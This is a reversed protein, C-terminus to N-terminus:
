DGSYWGHEMKRRLSLWLDAELCCQIVRELSKEKARRGGLTGSVCRSIIM